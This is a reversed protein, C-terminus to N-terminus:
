KRGLTLEKTKKTHLPLNIVACWDVGTAGGAWMHVQVGGGNMRVAACWNVGLFCTFLDNVEPPFFITVHRQLYITFPYLSRM